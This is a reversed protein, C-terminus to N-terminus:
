GRESNSNAQQDLDDLRIGRSALERELEARREQPQDFSRPECDLGVCRALDILAIDYAVQSALATSSWDMGRESDISDLHQRCALVVALTEGTTMGTDSRSRDRLAVDLINAYM